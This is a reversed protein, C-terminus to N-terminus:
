RRSSCAAGARRRGSSWHNHFKCPPRGAVPHGAIQYSHHNSIMTKDFEWGADVTMGGDRVELRVTAAVPLIWGTTMADLFPMCRKITLANDSASERSKDVPPLKRFWDPLHAKSPMPEAIVGKDEPACIFEITPSPRFFM